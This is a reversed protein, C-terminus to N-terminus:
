SARVVDTITYMWHPIPPHPRTRTLSPNRQWRWWRWVFCFIVNVKRQQLCSHLACSWFWFRCQHWKQNELMLVKKLSYTNSKSSEYHSNEPSSNPRYSMTHRVPVEITPRNCVESGSRKNASSYRYSAVLNAKKVRLTPWLYRVM